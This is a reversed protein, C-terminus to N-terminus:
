QSDRNKMFSRFRLSQARFVAIHHSLRCSIYLYTAEEINSYKQALNLSFLLLKIFFTKQKDPPSPKNTSEGKCGRRMKLRSIFVFGSVTVTIKLEKESSWLHGRKEIYGHMRIPHPNTKDKRFRQM